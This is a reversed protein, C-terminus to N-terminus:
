GLNEYKSIQEDMLASAPEGSYYRKYWDVTWELADALQLRTCWRLRARAKNSDVTLARAEYPHAGPQLNWRGQGGWLSIIAEVMQSVSQVEDPAPGFNWAEAFYEPQEWLREALVLYGCLPELVHQWPRIADPNRVLVPQGVSLSRVCDPVLRDACWDGGGIVNGARASAIAVARHQNGSFFSNRWAATVLEACAKSASYPDFGGLSDDERYPRLLGRNEYCKDSTVILVCRVSPARRAAELINVTGLVNSEFTLQPERYSRLVLSQAALHLVIDPAFRSLEESLRSADRIDGRVYEIEQELGAEACLSPMTDPALSYGLIQARLRILWSALWAGKFGSHGSIFVRKNNWFGLDPNLFKAM